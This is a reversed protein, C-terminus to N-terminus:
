LSPREPPALVSGPGLRRVYLVYTLATGLFVLVQALQLGLPLHVPGDLEFLAIANELRLAGVVQSFVDNQAALVFLGLLVGAAAVGVHVHGGGPAPHLWSACRFALAILGAAIAWSLMNPPIVDNRAPRNQARVVRWLALPVVLSRVVAVDLLTVSVAAPVDPRLSAVMWTMLVGQLGLGAVSVRWSAGFLPLILVLLYATLLSTM